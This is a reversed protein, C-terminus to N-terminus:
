ASRPPQDAMSPEIFIENPLFPRQVEKEEADTM